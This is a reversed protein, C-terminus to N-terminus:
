CCCSRIPDIKLGKRYHETEVLFEEFRWIEEASMGVCSWIWSMQFDGEGSLRYATQTSIVFNVAVEDVRFFCKLPAQRPLRNIVLLYRNCLGTRRSDQSCYNINEQYFM